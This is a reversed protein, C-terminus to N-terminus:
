GKTFDDSATIHKIKSNYEALDTHNILMTHSNKLALVRGDIRKASIQLQSYRPAHMADLSVSSSRAM